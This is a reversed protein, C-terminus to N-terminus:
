VYFVFFNTACGDPDIRKIWERYEVDLILFFDKSYDEESFYVNKLTELKYIKKTRFGCVKMYMYLLLVYKNKQGLVCVQDINRSKLYDAIERFNSIYALMRVIMNELM